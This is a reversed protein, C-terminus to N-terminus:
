PRMFSNVFIIPCLGAKRGSTIIKLDMNNITTEKSVTNKMVIDLKFRFTASRKLRTNSVKYSSLNKV